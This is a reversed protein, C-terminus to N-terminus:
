SEGGTAIGQPTALQLITFEDAERPDLEGVTRGESMVVIKHSIALVEPLDSSVVLLAVGKQALQRLINYLEAKAGVDVGRTPEDVILIRPNRALWKALLVKQQNGGSFDMVQRDIMPPVINMREVSDLALQKRKQEVILGNQSVLELNASSINSTIDMALFLGALRRDEPVMGIGARMAEVPHNITIEKGDVQISGSVKKRLGFIAECLETRGAGVLGALTVIEGSRVKVTAGRVPPVVLHQIDLLYRAESLDPIPEPVFSLARGVELRILEDATTEGINRVGTVRGDRLVTVRDAIEFVEALRHSVYVVAVGREAQQRLIRFLQRAESVTLSSTPEDLILIRVNQSLAKAIEVLQQQSPSLDFVLDSPKIDVELEDLLEQTHENMFKFDITGRRTVPQRGAYINEAISLSPFLSREQFVIAVGSRQAAKEDGPAYIEHNIEMTGQDPQYVGAIIHMLTSKGAGNEGIIAHIEGHNVKLSVDDLALVGPFAKTIGKVELFSGDLRNPQSVDTIEQQIEPM